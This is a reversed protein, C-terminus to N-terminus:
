RGHGRGRRRSEQPQPTGAPCQVRAGLEVPVRLHQKVGHVHSKLFMRPMGECTDADVKVAAMTILVVSFGIFLMLTGCVPGKILGM